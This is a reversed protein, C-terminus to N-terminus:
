KNKVEDEEDEGFEEKSVGILGNYQMKKIIEMIMSIQTMVIGYDKKALDKNLFLQCYNFNSYINKPKTKLLVYILPNITDDVGLEKKGSCFSISNQLISFAKQICKIKEFPSFKNDMENIYDMSIKWLKENVINKDTILNHPKVFDLRCCKKYFKIDAKSSITPYLKDYLKLFIFNELEYTIVSIEEKSFRKMCNEKRIISKMAKFYNNLADALGVKEELKIIDDYKGQFKRFDPIIEILNSIPKENKEDNIKLNKEESKKGPVKSIDENNENNDNKKSSINRSSIAIKILPESRRPEKNANNNFNTTTLNTNFNNDNKNKKDNTKQKIYEVKTILGENDYTINFESPLLIKNYFYEIYKSKELNKIQNYNSTIIMNLKEGGKFKQYIQNLINNQYHHIMEEVEQILTIFLKNYNNNSYEKPIENLHAQIFSTCFIIKQSKANDLNFSIENNINNMIHPFIEEKFDIEFNDNKDNEGNLPSYIVLHKDNIEKQKEEVLTKDNIINSCKKNKNSTIIKDKLDNDTVFIDKQRHIFQIFNDKQIINMYSLVELFCKKIKTLMNNDTENKFYIDEKLIENMKAELTKRYDLKTIHIFYNSKDQKYKNYLDKIFKEYKIIAEFINKHENNKNNSIFLRKNNSILNIILYLNSFNFCVSQYQINEYKNEDFYNYNIINERDNSKVDYQKDVLKQIIYPVKINKEVHDIIEFISPMTDIIFRNFITYCIENNNENSFLQGNLLKSFIIAIVNLNKVTIIPIVDTTVIGNYDPNTLSTYLIVGFFFKSKLIYKTYESIQPKPKQDIYKKNLLLEFINTIYKIVFPISTLNDKVKKIIETITDIITNYNKRLSNSMQLFSIEDTSSTIKNIKNLIGKNSYIDNQSKKSTNNILINLYDKMAENDKKKKSNKKENEVEQLKNKLFLINVNNKENFPEENIITNVIVDSVPQSDIKKDSGKRHHILKKLKKIASTKQKETEFIGFENENNNKFLNEKQYNRIEDEEINYLKETNNSIISNIEILLKDKNSKLNLVAESLISCLYNRVDAKRNLVRFIYYLINDPSFLYSLAKKDDPNIENNPLKEMITKEILLYIILLLEDQIFSSNITDEYLFNIIFDSLQEYNKPDFNDVIKLMYNNNNRLIFFLQKINEYKEEGLVEIPNENLFYNIHEEIDYSQIYDYIEKIKIKNKYFKLTNKNIKEIMKSKNSIFREKTSLMEKLLYQLSCIKQFISMNEYQEVNSNKKHHSIVTSNSQKFNIKNEQHSMRKMVANINVPAELQASQKKQINVMKWFINNENM